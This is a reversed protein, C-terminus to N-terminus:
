IVMIKKISAVHKERRQKSIEVGKVRLIAIRDYFKQENRDFVIISALMKM